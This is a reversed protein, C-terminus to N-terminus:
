IDEFQWKAGRTGFGIRFSVRHNAASDLSGRIPPIFRCFEQTGALISLSAMVESGDAFKVNFQGVNDCVPKRREEM